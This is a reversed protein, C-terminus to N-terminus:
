PTQIRRCESYALAAIWALGVTLCARQLLGGIPALSADGTFGASAAVFLVFFAVASLVSYVAWGVRRARGFRFAAVLMAVPLGFFVGLSFVDHLLGVTTPTAPITV